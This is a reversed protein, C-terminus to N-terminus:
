GAARAQHTEFFGQLANRSIVIHREDDGRWSSRWPAEDHTMARLLGASYGGYTNWVETLFNSTDPDVDDWMFPDSDDLLITSSGAAKFEHYVVPVVPGHSWAQIPEMFLPAHHRALYHGQAYYLLKQLKMNSLEDDEAQAWAIFWRAITMAPYPPTNMWERETVERMM